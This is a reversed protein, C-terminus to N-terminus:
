RLGPGGRQVRGRGQPCRPRRRHAAAPAADAPGGARRASGSRAGRAPRRRGRRAPQGRGAGPDPPPRPLSPHDAGARPARGALRRRGADAQGGRGPEGLLAQQRGPGAHARVAPDACRRGDASRCACTSTRSEGWAPV